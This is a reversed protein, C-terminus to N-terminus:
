RGAPITKIKFLAKLKMVTHITQGTLESLHYASKLIM